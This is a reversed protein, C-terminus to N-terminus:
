DQPQTPEFVSKRRADIVNCHLVSWPLRTTSCDLATSYLTTSKKGWGPKKCNTFGSASSNANKFRYSCSKPHTNLGPASTGKLWFLKQKNKNKNIVRKKEKTPFPNTEQAACVSSLAFLFFFWPHSPRISCGWHWVGLWGRWCGVGVRLM